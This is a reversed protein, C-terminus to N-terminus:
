VKLWEVKLGRIREAEQLLNLDKNEPFFLNIEQGKTMNWILLDEKREPSEGDIIFNNDSFPNRLRCLNDVTAIIRVWCIKGGKKLASVKFAGETLLDIFMADKWRSPIAPFVRICDGWGQVLMDSIGCSIACSSDITLQLDRAQTLLDKRPNKLKKEEMPRSFYSNGNLGTTCNFHLGNPLIWDNCYKRLFEYAMERRGIVAAFSVMQAYTHGGWCFQGLALYQLLSADIINREEESGDITIDMAPHIAMLHSPHRHSRDLAKDKWVGLVPTGEPVRANGPVNFDVFHYGVLKHHIEKARERLDEIKLTDEIEIIWDCCKRILAIDINPDKCWAQPSGEMYEPSSSLPIHYKGDAEEELNASYFLFTSKILSYGKEKLWKKDMSYRWRLWVLYALFGTSSWAFGVPDWCNSIVTYNPFTACRYFSGETGFVKKTDYEVKSLTEHMYDIWVDLLELHNGSLAPWFTEQVNINAHYDGRWAPNRGDMAWLGQLGPPNSGKRASSALIYIGYYWLFEINKEPLTVASVSWFNKWEQIHEELIADFGKKFWLSHNLIAHKKATEEDKDNSFSVFIDPGKNNWCIAFYTDPLIQQIAITLNGNQSIKVEPHGLATLGPSTEYFPLLNLKAKEPWPDLRFCFLDKDKFVFAQLGHTEHKSQLTASVAAKALSLEFQSCSQFDYELDLRGLYVKTPGIPNKKIAKKTTESITDFDKKEM